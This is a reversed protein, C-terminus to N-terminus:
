LCEWNLNPNRKGNTEYFYKVAQLVDDICVCLNAPIEDPTQVTITFYEENSEEPNTLSCNDEGLVYSVTYRRKGKILNGGGCTILEGEEMELAMANYKKGDMLRIFQEIKEWTPNEGNFEGEAFLFMWSM